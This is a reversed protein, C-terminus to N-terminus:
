KGKWQPKRKEAFARPGEVFDESEAMAVMGPYNKRVAEELEQCTPLHLSNMVEPRDITVVRLHERKEVKIFEYAM